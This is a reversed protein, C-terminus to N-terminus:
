PGGGRVQARGPAMRASALAGVMMRDPHAGSLRLPRPRVPAKGVAPHPDEPFERLTQRRLAEIAVATTAALIAVGFLQRNGTAIDRLMSTELAWIVSV